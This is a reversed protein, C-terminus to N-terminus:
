AHNVGGKQKKIRALAEAVVSRSMYGNCIPCASRYILTDAALVHHCVVCQFYYTKSKKKEM